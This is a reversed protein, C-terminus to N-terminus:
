GGSEKRTSRDVPHSVDRSTPVSGLIATLRSIVLPDDIKAPLGQSERSRLVLDAFEERSYSGANSDGLATM